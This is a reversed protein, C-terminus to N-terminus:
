STTGKLEELAADYRARWDPDTDHLRLATQLGSLVTTHDRYFFKGISPRSMCLLDTMLRYCAQRPRVFPRLRADGRIDETKVDFHSAVIRVIREISAVPVIDTTTVKPAGRVALVRCREETEALRARLAIMEAKLESNEREVKERKDREAKEAPTTDPAPRPFLKPFNAHKAAPSLNAVVAERREQLGRVIGIDLDNPM